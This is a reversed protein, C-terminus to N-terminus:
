IIDRKGLCKVVDSPFMKQLRNCFLSTYGLNVIIVVSLWIKNGKIGAFFFSHCIVNMIRGYWMKHLQSTYLIFFSIVFFFNDKKKFPSTM